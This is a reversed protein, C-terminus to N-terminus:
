ARTWPRRRMRPHRSSWRSKTTYLGTECVFAVHTDSVFYVPFLYLVFLRFLVTRDFPTGYRDYLDELVARPLDNGQDAGELNRIYQAKTMKNRVNVNHADTNLMILSFALVYATDVVCVACGCRTLLPSLPVVM